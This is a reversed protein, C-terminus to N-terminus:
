MGDVGSTSNLGYIVAKGGKGLSIACFGKKKKKKVIGGIEDLM